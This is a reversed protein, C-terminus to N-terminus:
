GAIPHKTVIEDISDVLKTSTVENFFLFKKTCALNIFNAITATFLISIINVILRGYGRYVNLIPDKSHILAKLEMKFKLHELSKKWELAEASDSIQKQNYATVAEILSQGLEIISNGKDIKKSKLKEGYAIFSGIATELRQACSHDWSLLQELSSNLDTQRLHKIFVDYLAKNSASLDDILAFFDEPKNLFVWEIFPRQKIWYEAPTTSVVGTNLDAYTKEVFSLSLSDEMHYSLLSDLEKDDASHIAQKIKDLHTSYKSFAYSILSDDQRVFKSQLLLNLDKKRDNTFKPLSIIKSSKPM